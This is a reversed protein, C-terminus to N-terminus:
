YSENIPKKNLSLLVTYSDGEMYRKEVRGYKNNREWNEIQEITWGKCRILQTIM